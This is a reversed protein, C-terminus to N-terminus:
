LKSSTELFRRVCVRRSTWDAEVVGVAIVLSAVIKV